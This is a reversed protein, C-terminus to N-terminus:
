WKVLSSYLNFLIACRRKSMDVSMESGRDSGAVSPSRSGSSDTRERTQVSLRKIFRKGLSLNSGEPQVVELALDKQKQM